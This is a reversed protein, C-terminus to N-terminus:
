LGQALAQLAAETQSAGEGFLAEGVARVTQELMPSQTTAYGMHGVRFYTDKLTPYLGGAVVVGREGIASVLTADRGEPYRIASLTRATCSAHSILQLGLLSWAARLATAVRQHRAWRAEVGHLGNLTDDLIERLGVELALIHNTAPTAFYSPKRAEYAHMIPLWSEWDVYIPPPHPLQRRRALARPSVVALALGAPLGLAKQSGTYYVDAGLAEMAFDEAGTACVGDFVTLAGHAEAVATIVAPDVRVGTSTDVHTAFVARVDGGRELALTLEERSPVQGPAAEVIIVRAQLRRLIEATRQSFYGTEVVVVTDGPAVLNAAASDMFLTGSGALIFPQSDASARWVQRMMELSAGFAELVQPALHSPPAVSFAETVAPSVEVPGPIMLIKKNM